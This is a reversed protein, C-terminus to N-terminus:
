PFTMCERARIISYRIFPFDLNISELLNVIDRQASQIFVYSTTDLIQTFPLTKVTMFDTMSFDYIRPTNNHNSREDERMNNIM